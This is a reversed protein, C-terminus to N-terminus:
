LGGGHHCVKELLAVGVGFFGCRRITSSGPGLMNLDGCEAEQSGYAQEICSDIEIWVVV